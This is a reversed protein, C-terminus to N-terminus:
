VQKEGGKFFQRLSNQFLQPLLFESDSSDRNKPHPTQIKVCNNQFKPLKEYASSKEKTVKKEDKM